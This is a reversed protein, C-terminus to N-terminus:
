EVVNATHLNEADEDVVNLSRKLENRIEEMKAEYAKHQKRFRNAVAQAEDEDFAASLAVKKAANEMKESNKAVMDDFLKMVDTAKYGQKIGMEDSASGDTFHDKIIEGVVITARLGSLPALGVAANNFANHNKVATEVTEHVGKLAADYSDSVSKLVDQVNGAFETAKPSAWIVSLEEAFKKSENTVTQMVDEKGDNVARMLSDLNTQSIIPM